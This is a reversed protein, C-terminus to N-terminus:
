TGGRKGRAPDARISGLRATRAGQITRKARGDSSSRASAPKCTIMMTRLAAFTEDATPRQLRLASPLQLLQSHRLRLLNDRNLSTKRSM